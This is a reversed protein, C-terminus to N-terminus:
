GVECECVVWLHLLWIGIEMLLTFYELLTKWFDIQLHNLNALAELFFLLWPALLRLPESFNNGILHSLYEPAVLRPMRGMILGEGLVILLLEDVLAVLEIDWLSQPEVPLCGLRINAGQVLPVDQGM